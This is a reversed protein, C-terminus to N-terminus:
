IVMEETYENSIFVLGLYLSQLLLEAKGEEDFETIIFTVDGGDENDGEISFGAETLGEVSNVTNMVLISVASCVIPDGHNKIKFGCVCKEGDVEGYLVTAEIM